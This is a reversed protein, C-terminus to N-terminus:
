PIPVGRARQAAAIRRVVHFLHLTTHAMQRIEDDAWAIGGGVDAALAERFETIAETTFTFSGWPPSSVVTATRAPATEPLVAEALVGTDQNNTTSYFTPTLTLYIPM